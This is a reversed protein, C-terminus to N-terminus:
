EESFYTKIFDNIDWIQVDTSGKCCVERKSLDVVARAYHSDGDVYSGEVMEIFRTLWQKAGWNKTEAADEDYWENGSGFIDSEIYVYDDSRDKLFGEIKKIDNNKVANWNNGKLPTMYCSEDNWMVSVMNGPISLRTSNLSYGGDFRDAADDIDKKSGICIHLTEDGAFHWIGLVENRSETILSETIFDKLNKM